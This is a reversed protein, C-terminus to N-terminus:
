VAFSGKSLEKVLLECVTRVATAEDEDDVRDQLIQLVKPDDEGVLSLVNCLDIRVATVTEAALAKVLMDVTREKIDSNAVPGYESLFACAVQRFDPDISKLMAFVTDINEATLPGDPLSHLGFAADGFERDDM